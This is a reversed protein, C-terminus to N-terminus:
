NSITSGAGQPVKNRLVRMVSFVSQGVVLEFGTGRLAHTVFVVRKSIGCGWKKEGKGAVLMLEVLQVWVWSIDKTQPLDENLLDIWERFYDM